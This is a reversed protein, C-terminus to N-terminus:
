KKPIDPWSLAATPVGFGKIIDPQSYQVCYIQLRCYSFLNSQITWGEEKWTWLIFFDAHAVRFSEWGSWVEILCYRHPVNWFFAEKNFFSISCKVKSKNLSAAEWDNISVREYSKSSPFISVIFHSIKLRPNLPNKEKKFFFDWVCLFFNLAFRQKQIMFAWELVLTILKESSTHDVAFAM